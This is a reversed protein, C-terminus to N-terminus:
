RKFIVGEGFTGSKCLVSLFLHDVLEGTLALVCVSIVVLSM